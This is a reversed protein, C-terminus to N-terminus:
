RAEGGGCAFGGDAIPRTQRDDLFPEVRGFGVPAPRRALPQADPRGARVELLMRPGRDGQERREAGIGALVNALGGAIRKAVDAPEM